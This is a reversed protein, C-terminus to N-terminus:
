LKLIGCRTLVTDLTSSIKKLEDTVTTAAFVISFATAVGDIYGDYYDKNMKIPVTSEAFLQQYKEKTRWIKYLNNLTSEDTM